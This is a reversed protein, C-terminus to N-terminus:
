SFSSPQTLRLLCSRPRFRWCCWLHAASRFACAGRSGAGLKLSSPQFKHGRFSYLHDGPSRQPALTVGSATFITEQISRTAEQSTKPHGQAGISPQQSSKLHEYSARPETPSPRPPSPLPSSTFWRPCYAPIKGFRNQPDHAPLDSFGCNGPSGADVDSTAVSLLPFTM